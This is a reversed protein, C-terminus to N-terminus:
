SQEGIINMLIKKSKSLLTLSFQGEANSLKYDIQYLLYKNNDDLYVGLQTSTAEKVTSISMDILRNDILLTDGPMFNFIPLCQCKVGDTTLTPYGNILLGREPKIEIVRTETNKMDWISVISGESSDVQVAYSSSNTSFMDLVSSVTGNVSMVDTIFKRKFEDSVNSDKVNAQKLLYNLASYMNIGSNLTLNLRSNYLGLLKSVCIIHTINTERSEKENSIHLVKGSFIRNIGSSKYGAYIEVEDYKYVLIKTIEAYTLNYIDIVFEDKLSSLYKHGDIEIVLNRNDTENGFVMIKKNLVSKFKIVLVREWVIM